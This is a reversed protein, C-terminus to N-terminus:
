LYNLLSLQFIQATARLAAEYTAQRAVFESIVEVMDADLDNSLTMQLHLDEEELRQNLIDLGQQRAGLSARSFNLDVVRDDLMAIAREILANDNLILGEHLRLLATFLGDTEQLNVDQGTLLDPEGGDLEGSAVGVAGTGDNPGSTTDLVVDFLAYATPDLPPQQNFRQIVDNATTVGPDISFTLVRGIPDYSYSNAGPGGNVFEVTVGDLTDTRGRTRVILASNATGFDLSVSAQVGLTSVTASEQGEPILGLEIAARSMSTRQIRLQGPGGCNDVLEIGNGYRALRAVLPTGTALNDPHNNIRDLVDGITLAGQLNVEFRVGDTRTIIFDANDVFGGATQVAQVLKGGATWQNPKAWVTGSGTAPHDDPDLYIAFDENADPDAQLWTIMDQATTVGSQISFTMTKAARSYTFGPAGEVVQVLVDNWQEGPNRAKLILDNDDGGWQLKLTASTSCDVLGTGDNYPENRKDLDAEFYDRIGPTENVLRLIDQATTQGPTIEFRITKTALDFSVSDAGPPVKEVFEVTFDNWEAGTRRARIVLDSNTTSSDWVCWAKEGVGTYDSVGLGFNLDELLTDQAFTRIGLQQATIGGNEGIAFDCGSLRSRVDIGTGDANIAAIVDAESGNFVNLLDEITRVGDEESFTLTYTQGGNLIQVGSDQDMEAGAGFRLQASAGVTVVARGGRQADLPDLEARFPCTEPDYAANIAAVINQATSYGTKMNVWLTRTADEYWAYEMGPDLVTGDDYYCVTVGNYEDGRYQATVIIDNDSGVSRVVARARVGLIDDLPTTTRVVPNLDKGVLPGTGINKALIGLESATSGGGVERISLTGASLSIELGTPTIEIYMQTGAPQNALMRLAVDGITECGTIDVIQSDSGNSVEISGPKVGQGGNLDALRTNFTLVPNLDVTGRVVESFGGFVEHGTLNTAFLLDVDGYSQLLQENGLYRVINDSRLEFPRTGTLSGAFLYRGRFNQNGADVLQQLAQRVLMAAAQRQEDSATTGIVGLANARVEAMMSSISSLATDTASMFSQNTGLNTKVQTKRELLRQLSLVRMSTVPEESPTIIRRGTSMQTQTKFLALQDKAVQTLLRERVFLDSVRTSPIGIVNAM